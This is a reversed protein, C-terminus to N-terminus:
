TRDLTLARVYSLFADPEKPDAMQGTFGLVCASLRSM